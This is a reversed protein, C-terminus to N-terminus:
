SISLTCVMGLHDSSDPETTQVRGDLVTVRPGV